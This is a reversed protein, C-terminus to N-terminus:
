VCNERTTEPGFARWALAFDTMRRIGAWLTQPGPPGDHKRNNYGGLEAVLLLFRELSPPERPPPSDTTITWVSKWEEDAFIENCPVQPCERGLMTLYLVRWAVVKYLMLCPKLRDDTELQIEEVKCGTKFVRFFVEVPWRGAYYDVVQLVQTQADIPLSTVLLWQIPEADKPPSIEQVWVVNVEVSPLEEDKRYPPKLEVQRARIELKAHRKDRHPTRPLKLKRRAVVPADIMADSLKRYTSPGADPDRQPLARNESARLVYDPRTISRNQQARVFLEYIDAESDAVLVVQTAPVRQAIESAREYELLWRHSEKMEIPDHKREKCTGHRQPDRGWITAEIVGLCLRDPTFAVLSHDFFGTRDEWNLPGAGRIEKTTYDLETTDQVLLVTDEHEMRHITAERHPELVKDAEARPNDFFRYAALTEKWGHCAANISAQPDALFRETLLRARGNLRRDGLDMTKLEEEIWATM